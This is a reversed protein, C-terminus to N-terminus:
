SRPAVDGAVPGAWGREKGREERGEGYAPTRPNIRKSFHKLNLHSCTFYTANRPLIHGSLLHMTKAAPLKFIIM